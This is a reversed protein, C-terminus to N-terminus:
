DDMNPRIRRMADRAADLACNICDRATNAAERARERASEAEGVARGGARVRERLRENANDITCGSESAPCRQQASGDATAIVLALLAAGIRLPTHAM